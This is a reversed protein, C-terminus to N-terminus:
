DSQWFQSILGPDRERVDCAIVAHDAVPEDAVGNQKQASVGHHDRGAVTGRSGSDGPKTM